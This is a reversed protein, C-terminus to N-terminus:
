RTPPHHHQVLRHIESLLRERTYAGKQLVEQIGGNLVARDEETLRMASVVIVPLSRWIPHSQLARVFAFGDMEPMMLDLLILSPLDASTELWDLAERGNSAEAVTWQHAVLLDRLLDRASPDDDVVLITCPPTGCRYKNMVDTLELPNIPKELYDSAGLAFGTHKDDLMSIMIVPIDRLNQDRKLEGLLMWGDMDPLMVDLTIVAPQAQRVMALGSDGTPATMVRFGQQVLYQALLERADEDDEM